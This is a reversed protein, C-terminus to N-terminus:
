EVSTQLWDVRRYIRQIPIEVQISELRLTADLADYETLIWQGTDLKHFYDVHVRDQDILVYDRFTKISRYFAFKQNSDYGRTTKSLVEIIVSPNTITDDRNELYQPTGCVVMADPYTYLRHALVRLRVDSSFVECNGMELALDLATCVSVAIRNHNTSGGAMPFIEGNYYESKYEAQEELAMYEEASLQLKHEQIRTM